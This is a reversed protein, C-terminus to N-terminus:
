LQTALDMPAGNRLLHVSVISGAARSAVIRQVDGKQSVPEGDLSVLIDGAQIGAGAAISGQQVVVVQAGAGAPAIGVGFIRPPGVAAPVAGNGGEACGALVLVALGFLRFRSRNL